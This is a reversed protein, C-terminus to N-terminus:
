PAAPADGTVTVDTFTKEIPGGPGNYTIIVDVKEGIASNSRWWIRNATGQVSSSVSFFADRLDQETVPTFFQGGTEVAAREMAARAYEGDLQFAITYIPIGLENARAIMADLDGSSAGDSMIVLAKLGPANLAALRELGATGSDWANTGGGANLTDIAANLLAKDSTFTQRTDWSSNFAQIETQDVNRMLSVFLKAANRLDIIKQGSMSGSVDLNLLVNAQVVTSSPPKAPEFHTIRAPRYPQETGSPREVITYQSKTTNYIFTGDQRELVFTRNTESPAGDPSPLTQAFDGSCGALFALVALSALVTLLKHTKM